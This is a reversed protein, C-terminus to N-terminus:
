KKLMFIFIAFLLLAVGQFLIRYQMLKNARRPESGRAMGVLGMGLMGLTALMALGILIMFVTEM